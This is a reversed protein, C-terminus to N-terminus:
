GDIKKTHEVFEDLSERIKPLLLYIGILNPIVMAFLMADSLRLVSDLSAAAGVIALSCFVVQYIKIVIESRGFLYVVAQEGYYGWSIM